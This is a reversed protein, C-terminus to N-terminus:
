SDPYGLWPEIREWTVNMSWARSVWPLGIHGYRISLHREAEAEEGGAIAAIYLASALGTRDAGAKCHILLPKPAEQMLKILSQVEQNSLEKQESMPFDIHTIGLHDALARETEYWDAGIAEGRLNLVTAIGHERRWRALDQGDMQAARYVEGQRVVYFNGTIQLYALYGVLLVVGAFFLIGVNLLLRKMM